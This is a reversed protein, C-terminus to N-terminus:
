DETLSAAAAREEWSAQWAFERNAAQPDSAMSVALQAVFRQLLDGTDELDFLEPLARVAITMEGLYTMVHFVARTNPTLPPSGRLSRLVVDGAVLRGDRLPLSAAFRPTVDGLNSLVVTAYCRKPNTAMRLGGRFKRIRDFVKLFMVPSGRSKFERTDRCIGELLQAPQECERHGRTLFGYSVVNAAPMEALEETRLNVPVCIRMWRGRDGQHKEQNWARLVLFLDRVIIDNLSAGDRKGVRKLIQTEDATFTHSVIGPFPPPRDVPVDGVRPPDLPCPKRAVFRIAKKLKERLGLRSVGAVALM